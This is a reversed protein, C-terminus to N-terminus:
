SFESHFPQVVFGSVLFKASCRSKQSQAPKKFPWKQLIQINRVLSFRTHSVASAASACTSKLSKLITGNQAITRPRQYSEKSTRQNMWSLLIMLARYVISFYLTAYMFWQVTAAACLRDELSWTGVAWLQISPWLYQTVWLERFIGASRKNM